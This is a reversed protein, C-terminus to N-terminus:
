GSQVAETQSVPFEPNAVAEPPLMFAQWNRMEQWNGSFRAADKPALMLMKCPVKLPNLDKDANISGEAPAKFPANSYSVKVDMDKASPSVKNLYETVICQKKNTPNITMHALRLCCRNIFMASPFSIGRPHTGDFITGLYNYIEKFNIGLIDEPRPHRECVAIMKLVESIVMSSNDDSLCGNTDDNTDDDDDNANAGMNKLWLDIPPEAEPNKPKWMGDLKHMQLFNLLETESRQPVFQQLFEENETGYLHIGLLLMAKEKRTWRREEQNKRQFGRQSKCQSLKKRGM